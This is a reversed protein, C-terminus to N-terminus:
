LINDAPSLSQTTSSHVVEEPELQIARHHGLSPVLHIPRCWDWQDPAQRTMGLKRALGQIEETIAFQLHLGVERPLASLLERMVQSGHGRRTEKVIIRQVIFKHHVAQCHACLSMDPQNQVLVIAEPVLIHYFTRQWGLVGRAHHHLTVDRPRSFVHSPKVDKLLVAFRWHQVSTRREHRVHEIPENNVLELLVSSAAVMLSPSREPYQMLAKIDGTDTGLGDIWAREIIYIPDQEPRSQLRGVLRRHHGELFFHRVFAAVSCYAEDPDLPACEEAWETVTFFPLGSFPAPLAVAQFAWDGGDDRERVKGEEHTDEPKVHVLVPVIVRRDRRQAMVEPRRSAVTRLVALVVAASHLCNKLRHCTTQVSSFGLTLCEITM